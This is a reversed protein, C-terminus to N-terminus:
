SYHVYSCKQSLQRLETQHYEFRVNDRLWTFFPSCVKHVSFWRTFSWWINHSMCNFYHLVNFNTGLKCSCFEVSSLKRMRHGYISIAQFGLGSPLFSGHFCSYTLCRMKPCYCDLVSFTLHKFQLRADGHSLSIICFWLHLLRWSEYTFQNPRWCLVFRLPHDDSLFLPLWIVM